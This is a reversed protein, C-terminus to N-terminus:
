PSRRQGWLGVRRQCRFVMLVRTAKGGGQGHKCRSCNRHDLLAIKRPIGAARCCAFAEHMQKLERIGSVRNALNRRSSPQGREVGAVGCLAARGLWFAVSHGREGLTM